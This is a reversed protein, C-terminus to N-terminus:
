NNRKSFHKLFYLSNKGAEFEEAQDGTHFCKLGYKNAYVRFEGYFERTGKQSDFIWAKIRDADIWKIQLQQYKTLDQFEDYDYEDKAYPIFTAEILDSDEVPKWNEDVYFGNPFMSLIELAEELNSEDLPEEEQTIYFFADNSLQMTKAKSYDLNFQAM